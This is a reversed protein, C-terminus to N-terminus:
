SDQRWTTGVTGIVHIDRGREDVDGTRRPHGSSTWKFKKLENL